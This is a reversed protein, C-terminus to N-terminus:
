EHALLVSPCVKKSDMYKSASVDLKGMTISFDVFHHIYTVCSIMLNLIGSM